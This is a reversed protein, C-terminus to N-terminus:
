QASTAAEGKFKYYVRNGFRLDIYELQAEKGKLAESSLVLQLDRVLTGPNSGFSAKVFYPRSLHVSFDQPNDVTAGVAGFGAQGLTDLLAVLGPLHTPSFTEGIPSVPITETSSAIGGAFVYGSITPSGRQGEIYIFGTDDMRYCSAPGEENATLFTTPCWLAFPRREKIDITLTTALISPRSMRAEKVPPFATILAKELTARPYLFINRNSFIHLKGDDLTSQVYTRVADASVDNAGNVTMEQISVEPRYSLYSVAAIVIASSVCIGLMMWM